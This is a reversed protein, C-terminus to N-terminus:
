ATEALTWRVSWPGLECWQPKAGEHWLVRGDDYPFECSQPSLNASLRLQRQRACDWTVFVANEGMQRWEGAQLIERIL